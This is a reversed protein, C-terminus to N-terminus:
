VERWLSPYYLAGTARSANAKRYLAPLTCTLASLSIMIFRASPRLRCLNWLPFGSISDSGSESSAASTIQARKGPVIQM